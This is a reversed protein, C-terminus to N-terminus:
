DDATVRDHRLSSRATERAALVAIITLVSAVTM